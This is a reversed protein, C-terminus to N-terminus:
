FWQRTTCNEAPRGTQAPEYCSDCSITSVPMPCWRVESVRVNSGQGMVGLIHNTWGIQNWTSTQPLNSSTGELNKQSITTGFIKNMRVILLIHRQGAVSVEVKSWSTQGIVVLVQDTFTQEWNSSIGELIKKLYQLGLFPVVWFCLLGRAIAKM